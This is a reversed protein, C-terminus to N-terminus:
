ITRAQQATQTRIAAAMTQLDSYMAQGLIMNKQMESLGESKALLAAMGRRRYMAAEQADGNVLFCEATFLNNFIDMYYLPINCQAFWDQSLSTFFVPAKQYTLTVTYVGDTASMFRIAISTGPTVIKVCVADPRKTQQTSIGLVSANYVRTVDHSIGSQDTLTAKELFGFDAITVVYDQTGGITLLSSNENRNTPWTWPASNMFCVVENAITMAPENGTQATLPIYTNLKAQAYNVSQQLTYSM